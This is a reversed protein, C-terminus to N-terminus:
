VTNHDPTALLLRSQCNSNSIVERYLREIKASMLTVNFNEIVKKRGKKGMNESVEQNSIFYTIKEAWKGPDDPPLLFGDINNDVVEKIQRPIKGGM